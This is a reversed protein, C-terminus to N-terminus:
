KGAVLGSLSKEAPVFVVVLGPGETDDVTIM